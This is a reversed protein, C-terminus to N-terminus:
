EFDADISVWQDEALQNWNSSSELIRPILVKKGPAAGLWAGWWSFTSVSLIFDDCKSLMILSTTPSPEDIFYFGRGEFQNKCWEIDDSFIIVRHSEHNIIDLCKEYYSKKLVFEPKNNKFNDGRRVHVGILRSSNKRLNSMLLSSKEETKKDLRFYDRIETHNSRFIEKDQMYGHILLPWCSDIPHSNEDTNMCINFLKKNGFKWSLKFLTYLLRNIFKTFNSNLDRITPFNNLEFFRQNAKPIGRWNQESFWGIVLQLKRNAKDAKSYASAFMFLQNGLGGRLVLYLPLKLM